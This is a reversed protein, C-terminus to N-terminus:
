ITFLSPHPGEGPIREPKANGGVTLPNWKVVLGPMGTLKEVEAGKPELWIPNSMRQIILLIM